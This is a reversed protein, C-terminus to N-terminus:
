NMRYCRVGDLRGETSGVAHRDGRLGIDLGEPRGAVLLSM